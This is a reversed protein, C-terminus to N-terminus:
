EVKLFTVEGKKKDWKFYKKYKELKNGLRYWLPKPDSNDNIAKLFEGLKEIIKSTPIAKGFGITYALYMYYQMYKSDLSLPCNLYIEFPFTKIGDAKLFSKDTIVSKDKYYVGYLTNILEKKNQELNIPLYTVEAIKTAIKTIADMSGSELCKLFEEKPLKEAM